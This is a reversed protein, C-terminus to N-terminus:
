ASPCTTSPHEFSARALINNPARFRYDQYSALAATGNIDSGGLTPQFYFPVIRPRYL